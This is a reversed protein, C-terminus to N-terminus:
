GGIASMPRDPQLFTAEDIEHGPQKDGMTNRWARTIQEDDAGSRLLSRLDTEDRAFLGNRLQGDATLRTRDCRRCFARTISRGSVGTTRIVSSRRSGQVTVQEAWQQLEQTVPLVEAAGDRVQLAIVRGRHALDDGGVASPPITV